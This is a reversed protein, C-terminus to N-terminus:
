SLLMLALFATKPYTTMVVPLYRSNICRKAEMSMRMDQVVYSDLVILEWLRSKGTM